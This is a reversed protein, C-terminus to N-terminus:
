NKRPSWKKSPKAKPTKKVNVISKHDTTFHVSSGCIICKIASTSETSQSASKTMGRRAQIVKDGGSTDHTSSGSNECCNDIQCDKPHHDNFGCYPCPAFPKAKQKQKQKSDSPYNLSQAKLSAMNSTVSHTKHDSTRHDDKKCVM